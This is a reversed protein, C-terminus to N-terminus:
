LTPRKTISPDVRIRADVAICGKTMMYIPNLDMEAIMPFDEVLQDVRMITEEAAQMDVTVEGRVGKLIPYSKISTILQQAEAKTVPAIAFSVDKLVEVYIGGMGFMVIHGFHQDYTVGIIGEKGGSCMKQVMVGELQIDKSAMRKILDRYQTILEENNHIDLVVAKAETKHVLKASIGKMVVPFGVEAAVDLADEVNKVVKYEPTQIGYAHLVKLVESMPLMGGQEGLEGIIKTVAGKNVDFRMVDSEPRDRYKKYKIMDSLARVANEPFVYTPVRNALLMSYGPSDTRAGMFCSLIPKESWKSADIIAQAIDLENTMIPPVFIVIAADVNPDKLVANLAVNYRERTADGILDVPNHKATEEPLQSNLLNLTEPTFEAISVGYGACADATMIAPGGANTIIALRNGSPLKQFSLAMATDFLEEISQVRIVGCEDFLADTATESEALSGTHSRAARAGASSRGSKVAIIPKKKILKKTIRTFNRPNGFNELYLLILDTDEDHELMELLDNASVNTKNGISAFKSLGLGLQNAYNLIAIGLAGSQSIFGIRGRRPRAKSFTANLKINENTNIIGLCNPGIMRINNKEVIEKLKKEREEGAPGMERFGGSIVLLSGVGKEVCQEVVECVFPAPVIVVALDVEGPIDKVSAYAKISRVHEAKPNVPYIPGNFEEDIVNRLFENGISGPKRSAGIIAVSRPSFAIKLKEIHKM